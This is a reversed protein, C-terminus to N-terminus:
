KREVTGVLEGDMILFLIHKAINLTQRSRNQAGGAILEQPCLDLVCRIVCGFFGDVGILVCSICEMAYQTFLIQFHSSSVCKSRGLNKKKQDHWYNIIELFTPKTNKKTRMAYFNFTFVIRWDNRSTAPFLRFLM